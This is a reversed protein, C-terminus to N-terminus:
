VSSDYRPKSVRLVAYTGAWSALLLAVLIWCNAAIDLRSDAAGLLRVADLGTPICPAGYRQAAAEGACAFVRNQFQNKVLAIYADSHRLRLSHIHAM